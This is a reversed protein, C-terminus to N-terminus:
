DRHDACDLLGNNYDDLMEYLPEGTRWPSTKGGAKVGSGVPHAAMWADADDITDAICSDDNGILVNLKACVLARFMTYTKDGDPMEMIAIADAKTYNLGGIWIYGQPWAEPHNKWYGPTGTGPNTSVQKNWFNINTLLYGPFGVWYNPYEGGVPDVPEWDAQLVEALRYEGPQLDCIEWFGTSDTMNNPEGSDFQENGNVDVYITWGSLGESTYGDAYKYKYGSICHTDGESGMTMPVVAAVSAIMILIVAIGGIGKNM